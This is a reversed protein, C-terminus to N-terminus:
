VLNNEHALPSVASAAHERSLTFSESPRPSPIPSISQIAHLHQHLTPSQHRVDAIDVSVVGYVLTGDLRTPTWQVPIGDAYPDAMHLLCINRNYRSDDRLPLFSSHMGSVHSFRTLLSPGSQFLDFSATSRRNPILEIRGAGGLVLEPLFHVVSYIVIHCFFTFVAPLLTLACDCPRLFTSTGSCSIYCIDSRDIVAGGGPLCRKKEKRM